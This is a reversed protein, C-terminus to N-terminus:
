IVLYSWGWNQFSADSQIVTHLTFYVIFLTMKFYLFPHKGLVDLVKINRKNHNQKIYM